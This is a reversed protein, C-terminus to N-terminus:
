AGITPVDATSNTSSESETSSTTNSTSSETGTGGNVHGDNASHGPAAPPLSDNDGAPTFSTTSEGTLQGAMNEIEQSESSPGDNEIKGTKLYMEGFVTYYSGNTKFSHKEAYYTAYVVYLLYAPNGSADPAYCGWVVDYDRDTSDYWTLLEWKIPSTTPNLGWGFWVEDSSGTLSAFESREEPLVLGGSVYAKELLECVRWGDEDASYMDRDIKNADPDEKSETIIAENAAAQEQMSTYTAQLKEYEVSKKSIDNTVGIANVVASVAIISMIAALVIKTTRFGIKRSHEDHTKIKEGMSTTDIEIAM